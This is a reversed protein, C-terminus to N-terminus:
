DPQSNMLQRIKINTNYLDQQLTQFEQLYLSLSTANRLNSLRLEKMVKDKNDLTLTSILSEKDLKAGESELINKIM